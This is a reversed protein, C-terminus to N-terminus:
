IYNCFYLKIAMKLFGDISAVKDVNRINFIVILIDHFFVLLHINRNCTSGQFCFIFCFISLTSNM